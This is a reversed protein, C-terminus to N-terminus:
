NITCIANLTLNRNGYICRDPKLSVHLPVFSKGIDVVKSANYQLKLRRM